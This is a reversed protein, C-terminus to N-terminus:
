RQGLMAQARARIGGGNTPAPTGGSRSKEPAGAQLEKRKADNKAREISAAHSGHLHSLARRLAESEPLARGTMQAHAQMFEIAAMGLEDRRLFEQSRNEMELSHGKGFVGSWEAGLGDVFRDITSYHKEQRVSGIFQSVEQLQKNYHDRLAEMQKGYHGNLESLKKAYPTDGDEEGEFKLDYPSVTFEGPPPGQSQQQPPQSAQQNRRFTEILRREAGTIFRDIVERPAARLDSETLSWDTARAVFSPDLPEPTTEQGGDGGETQSGGVDGSTQGGDATTVSSVIEDSM